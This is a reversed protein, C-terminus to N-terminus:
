HVLLPRGDALGTFRVAGARTQNGASLMLLGVTCGAVARREEIFAPAIFDM